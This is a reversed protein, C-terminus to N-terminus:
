AFVKYIAPMKPHKLCLNIVYETPYFPELDLLKAINYINVLFEATINKNSILDVMLTISNTKSALKLFELNYSQHCLRQLQTFEWNFVTRISSTDIIDNVVPLRKLIRIGKSDMTFSNNSLWKNCKKM